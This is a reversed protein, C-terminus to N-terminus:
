GPAGPGRISRDPEGQGDLYLSIWGLAVLMVFTAANAPIQLNFDVASHILMATMGMIAAFSMGRMLPNRRRYQALLAVALTSIVIGGLLGIGIIGTESAFELYDNHVHDHFTTVDEKRYRPFVAYFSGAGSGFVPYDAWQELAYEYVGIKGRESAVTTEGLRRAVKEVGFWAGVIFLDIVILSVLLIVTSRTAHRSLALGIGGAVLLSAFFATNGMRSRTLILGIVIAVLLLRLRAKPSLLLQALNRLRQRWTVAQLGGGLKAIMLGIGVALCMELYGALHNQNVYTGTIVGATYPRYGTLAGISIQYDTFAAAAGYITQLLASIVFVFAFWEVRKATNVLLLALCFLTVYAVSKLWFVVTAHPDLSLMAWAGAGRYGLALSHIRAAEPSLFEVIGLPLPVVQLPVYALWLAFLILVPRAKLFVPTFAVRGRVFGWLWAAGLLYAWTELIAWAWPRNSGLPLPAWVLLGLLALFLVRELLSTRPIAPGTAAM